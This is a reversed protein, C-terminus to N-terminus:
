YIIKETSICNEVCWMVDDWIEDDEYMQSITNQRFKAYAESSAKMSYRNEELQCLLRASIEHKAAVKYTKNKSTVTYM